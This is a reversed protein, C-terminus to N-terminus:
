LVKQALQDLEEPTNYEDKVIMNPLTTAGGSVNKSKNAQVINKVLVSNEFLEIASDTKISNRDTSWGSVVNNQQQLRLKAKRKNPSRNGKKGGFTPSAFNKKVDQSKDRIKPSEIM